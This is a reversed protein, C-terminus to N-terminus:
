KGEKDALSRISRAIYGADVSEPYKGAYENAVREAEGLVVAIAARAEPEMIQWPKKKELPDLCGAAYIARAVREVLDSM